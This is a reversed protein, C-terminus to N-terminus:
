LILQTLALTIVLMYEKYNEMSTKMTKGVLPVNEIQKKFKNTLQIYFIGVVLILLGRFLGM